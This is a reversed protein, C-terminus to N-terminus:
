FLQKEKNNDIYDRITEDSYSLLHGLKYAFDERNFTYTNNNISKVRDAKLNLFEDIVAEEKYFVFSYTNINMSFPFLDTIIPDDEVYYKTNYQKTIMEVYNLYEDREEKSKFPHAFAIKKLGAKVMENFCDIVGCNYSYKDIEKM